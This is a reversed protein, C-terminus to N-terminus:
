GVDLDVKQGAVADFVEKVFLFISTQKIETHEASVRGVENFFSSRQELM